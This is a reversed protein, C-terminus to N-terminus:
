TKPERVLRMGISYDKTSPVAGVRASVRVSKASDQWSGGRVVRQYNRSYWDECWEAVNGLMDFLGWANASKTGVAHPRSAIGSEQALGFWAVRDLAPPASNARAAYEWEAERPLRYVFGDHRGNLRELFDQADDWSIHEVPRGPGKFDSPNTSMVAQWQEQTVETTGIQFADVSVKLPKEDDQCDQDTPPSCGMRFEGAPVNAFQFTSGNVALTMPTSPKAAARSLLASEPITPTNAIVARSPPTGPPQTPSPSPQRLIEPLKTAPPEHTLVPAPTSPPPTVVVQKTDQVPRRLLLVMLVAVLVVGAAAGAIWGPSTAAAASPKTEVAAPTVATTPAPAYSVASAVPAGGGGRNPFIPIRAIDEDRQDPSHVEPRVGRDEYKRRILDGVRFGVDELSLPTELSPDGHRLVDLLAGSFMTYSEGEPAISVSRSSSSCLLTTGRRPFADLTQLRAAAGPTSQFERFAAAAFCCDLILFRRVDRAANRLAAALDSVRISSTGELGEITSRVALFYDRGSIFGGHGTYYLFLDRPSPQASMRQRLYNQIEEVIEPATRTSDFLDLVNSDPLGFGRADTLYDRFGRASTAFAASAALQPSKPWASGGLLIALTTPATV